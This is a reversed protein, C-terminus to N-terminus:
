TKRTEIPLIELDFCSGRFSICADSCLSPIKPFSHWLATAEVKLIGGFVHLPDM